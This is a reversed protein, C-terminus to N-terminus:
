LHVFIMQLVRAIFVVNPVGNRKNIKKKENILVVKSRLSTHSDIRQKQDCPSYFCVNAWIWWVYILFTVKNNKICKINIKVDHVQHHLIRHKNKKKDNLVNSFVSFQLKNRKKKKSENHFNYFTKGLQDDKQSRCQHTNKKEIRLM